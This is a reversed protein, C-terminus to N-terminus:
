RPCDAYIEGGQRCSQRCACLASEKILPWITSKSGKMAVSGDEILVIEDVMELIKEQHSIIITIKEATHSSRLLELLQGFSWLDIGAEPEDFIRIKPNQALITAIEIRKIEGGSLSSDLSRKLYDDPCLGTQRLVQCDFNESHRLAIELIDIVRLGKFRPPHQFAYGIGQRARETINLRTIDEGELLIKGATPSYIGMIVKALSSKGSGNPGTFAYMKGKELFLNIDKLAQVSRDNESFHLSIDELQLL